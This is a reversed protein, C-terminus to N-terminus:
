VFAITGLRGSHQFGYEDHKRDCICVRTARRAVQVRVVRPLARTPEFTYREREFICDYVISLVIPTKPQGGEITLDWGWSRL